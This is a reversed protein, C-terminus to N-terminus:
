TCNDGNSGSSRKQNITVPLDEVPMSWMAAMVIEKFSDFICVTPMPSRAICFANGNVTMAGVTAMGFVCFHWIGLNHGLQLLLFQLAHLRRSYCFFMPVMVPMTVSVTVRVSMTVSMVAMSMMSSTTAATISNVTLYFSTCCFFM